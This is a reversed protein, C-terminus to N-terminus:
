FGTVIALNIRFCTRVASNIRKKEQQKKREFNNIAKKITKHHPLM